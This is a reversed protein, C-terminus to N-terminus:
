SLYKPWAYGALTGSKVKTWVDGDADKGEGIIEVAAGSKLTGIVAGNPTKRVNLSSCGVVHKVPAANQSKGISLYRANVYGTAGVINLKAWGNAYEEVVDVENGNGLQRVVPYETGPGSRVNLTPDDKTLGTVKAYAWPTYTKTVVPKTTAGNGTGVPQGSMAAKVDARFQNMSKGFRKFYPEPDGHNSAIGKKHAEQHGIVKDATLGYKKCLAAYHTVAYGWMKEFEARNELECLEYGITNANGWSHGIHWCAMTYPAFNYVGTDDIFGHVLKEVGPKNWRKFWGGGSGSESLVRIITPYVAPSHVILWSVSKLKAGNKFCDNKTCYKEVAM